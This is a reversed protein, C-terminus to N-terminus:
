RYEAMYIVTKQQITNQKNKKTEAMDQSTNYKKNHDKPSLTKKKLSIKSIFGSRGNTLECSDFLERTTYSPEKKKQYPKVQCSGNTIEGTFLIEGKIHFEQAHTFSYLTLLTLLILIRAM